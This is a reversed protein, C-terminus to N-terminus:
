LGSAAPAGRAVWFDNLAHQIRVYWIINGILPLLFWLGWIATIPPEEGAEVYMKGVEDAMVFMVVPSIFIAFLLHAVGGMGAPWYRKLEEGNQFSWVYTWIGFTIISVLITLGVSRGRGLEGSAESSGPKSEPPYWKGDSALWWDNGQSRDSMPGAYVRRGVRQTAGFPTGHPLLCPRSTSMLPTARM